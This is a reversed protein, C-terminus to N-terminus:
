LVLLQWSRDPDTPPLVPAEELVVHANTGGFGFSSVGARRPGEPWSALDTNVFFPSAAFDIQPNPREFHLSPPIEAREVALMAKILGAMGAAVELHGLNTKVSGVACYRTRETTRRFAKTLAAIEIPDGLATATGHAEVFGISGADVGANALAEAIVEAQGAVSPTTFGAKGSGDNNVASGKIVARITDGDALADELRKLVVVGAGCGFVTGAARADFARCHGDPSLIGGEQHVYGSKMPITLSVAGALAMDTEETLLGQCALHVAVLSTSCATQVTLAPGRLNLKYAIRPALTDKDNGISLMSTDVGITLLRDRLPHLALLYASLTVGGYVGAIGPYHLPDYGADELAQWSCELFLRHQPDMAEAERPSYGFFGADFEEIREIVGHARVYDPSNSLSAPIGAARLEEDTLFSISEVGNRLNQWLQEADDAGPFRCSLGIIAIDAIDSSIPPTSDDRNM